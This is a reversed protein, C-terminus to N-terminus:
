FTYKLICKFHPNLATLFPPHWPVELVISLSVAPGQWRGTSTLFFTDTTVDDFLIM